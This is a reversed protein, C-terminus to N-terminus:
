GKAGRKIAARKGTSRKPAKQTSQTAFIGSTEPLPKFANVGLKIGDIGLPVNGGTSAVKITKGTSSPGIEVGLDIRITLISGNLEMDINEMNDM